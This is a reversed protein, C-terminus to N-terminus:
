RQMFALFHQKVEDLRPLSPELFLEAGLYEELVQLRVFLEISSTAIVSPRFKARVLSALFNHFAENRMEHLSPRPDLIDSGLVMGSQPEVIVLSYPFYPRSGKERILSPLLFLDVEVAAARVELSQYAQMLSSSIELELTEIEPSAYSRKEDRWNPQGSGEPVRVLYTDDDTPEFIDPNRERRRAVDLAQELVLTMFRAEAFSLFWPAYSPGFSRFLPWAQRGRYKRGLAKIIDRDEKELLERDVLYAQLHPTELLLEERLFPGQEQMEWFRYLSEVGLYAAVAVHEGLRGMVSVFAVEGSEPNQVGFIEQEDMFRWPALERIAAHAEYLRAWEQMTPSAQQEM